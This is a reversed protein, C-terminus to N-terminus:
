RIFIVGGRMDQCTLLKGKIQTKSIMNILLTKMM